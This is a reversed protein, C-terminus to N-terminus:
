AARAYDELELQRGPKGVRLPLGRATVRLPQGLRDNRILGGEYRYWCVPWGATSGPHDIANSWLAVAAGTDYPDDPDLPRGAFGEASRWSGLTFQARSYYGNQGNYGAWQGGECTPIIYRFRPLWEVRGGHELYGRDFEDWGDGEYTPNAVVVPAVPELSARTGPEGGDVDSDPPGDLRGGDDPVDTGPLVRERM